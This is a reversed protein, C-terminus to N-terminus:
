HARGRRNEQQMPMVGAFSAMRTLREAAGPPAEPRDPAAHMQALVAEQAAREPPASCAAFQLLLAAGGACANM